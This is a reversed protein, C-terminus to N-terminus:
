IAWVVGLPGLGQCTDWLDLTQIEIINKRSELLKVRTDPGAHLGWTHKQSGGTVEEQGVVFATPWPSSVWNEAIDGLHSHATPLYTM